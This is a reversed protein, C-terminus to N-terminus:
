PQTEKTIRPDTFTGRDPKGFRPLLAPPHPYPRPKDEYPIGEAELRLMFFRRGWPPYGNWDDQQVLRQLTRKGVRRDLIALVRVIFDPHALADAISLSRYATLALIFDYDSFAADHEWRPLHAEDYGYMEQEYMEVWSFCVAEKGDVMICARGYANHVEHYQTLRYDVRDQLAPALLALQRSRLDSWSKYNPRRNM